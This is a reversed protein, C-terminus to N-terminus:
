NYCHNKEMWKCLLYVKKNKDMEYEEMERVQTIGLKERAEKYEEIKRRLVREQVLGQYFEEYETKKMYRLFPRLRHWVECEEKTKRRELKKYYLLGLDKIVTKRRQREDLKQNYIELMKLKLDRDEPLDDDAFTCDVLLTEAENDWETEFDGRLIM